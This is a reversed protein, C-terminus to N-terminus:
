RAAGPDPTRALCWVQVTQAGARRCATAAARTTAGTTMVDDILVVRRNCVTSEAVFRSESQAWRNSRNMRHQAARSQQNRLAACVTADGCWLAGLAQALLWTHDFGRRIQRQWQTPIPVFLWPEDDPPQSASAEPARSSHTAVADLFLEALLRTLQPRNQFKWLHILARIGTRMLFPAITSDFDPPRRSCAPCSYLPGPTIAVSRVSAFASTGLSDIKQLSLQDPQTLHARTPRRATDPKDHLPLACRTCSVDNVSFGAECAICIPKARAHPQQCLVCNGPLLWRICEIVQQKM